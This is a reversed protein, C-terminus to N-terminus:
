FCHNPILAICFTISLLKWREKLTKITDCTKPFNRRSKFSSFPLQATSALTHNHSLYIAISRAHTHIRARFVCANSLWNMWGNMQENTRENMLLFMYLICCRTDWGLSTTRFLCPITNCFGFCVRVVGFDYWSLHCHVFRRVLPRALVIHIQAVCDGHAYLSLSLDWWFINKSRDASCTLLLEFLGFFLFLRLLFM